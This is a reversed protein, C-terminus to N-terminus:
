NPLIELLKEEGKDAGLLNVRERVERYIEDTRRRCSVWLGTPM